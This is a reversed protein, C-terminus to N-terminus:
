GFHGLGGRDAHIINSFDPDFCGIGQKLYRYGYGISCSAQNRISSAVWSVTAAAHDRQFGLGIFIFLYKKTTTGTSFLYATKAM